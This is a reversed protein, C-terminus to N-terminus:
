IQHRSIDIINFHMKLTIARLESNTNEKNLHLPITLFYTTM